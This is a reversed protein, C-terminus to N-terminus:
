HAATPVAQSRGATLRGSEFCCTCLPCTNSSQELWQDVCAAHFAHHCNLVRCEDAEQWEELCVLCKESTNETVKGERYLAPLESARVRLLGSRAIDAASATQPKSSMAVMTGLLEMMFMLDRGADRPRSTLLPHHDDYRGGSVFLIFRSTGAQGDDSGMLQEDARLSRVGVLVCPTLSEATREFRFLRFFSLQGWSLDGERRAHVAPDAEPAARPPADRTAADHDIQLVAASLDQILDYLFREFTGPDGQTLPHGQRAHELTSLVASAASSPNHPEAAPPHPSSPSSTHLAERMLRSITSMTESESPANDQPAEPRAPPSLAALHEFLDSGLRRPRSPSATSATPAASAASAPTALSATSPGASSAAASSAAPAASTAAAAESPAAASAPTAEAAPAEAAPPATSPESAARRPLDTAPTTATGAAAGAAAAAASAGAAAPPVNSVLSAATAATAIRLIRGLMEGQEELSAVHPVGPQAEPAPPAQGASTQRDTAPTPNTDAAGNTHPASSDVAADNQQAARQTSDSPATRAVLAGQVIVSTGSLSASPQTGQRAGRSAGLVESLLTGFASSPRQAREMNPGLTGRLSRPEIPPHPTPASTPTAGPRAADATPAASTSASTNADNNSESQPTDLMRGVVHELIRMTMRREVALAADSETDPENQPTNNRGWRRRLNRALTRATREDDEQEDRRLGLSRGLGLRRRRPFPAPAEGEDASESEDRTRRQSSREAPPPARERANRSHSAGM